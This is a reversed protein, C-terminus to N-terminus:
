FKGSLPLFLNAPTAGVLSLLVREIDSIRVRAKAILGGILEAENEMVLYKFFLRWRIKLITKSKLGGEARASAGM